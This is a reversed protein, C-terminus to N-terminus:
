RRERFELKQSIQDATEMVEKKLREQIVKNLLKPPLALFASRQWRRPWIAEDRKV